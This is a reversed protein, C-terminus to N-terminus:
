GGSLIIERNAADTEVTLGPCDIIIAGEAEDSSVTIRSYGLMELYEWVSFTKTNRDEHTVLCFPTHDRDVVTESFLPMAARLWLVGDATYDAGIEPLETIMLGRGTASAPSIETPMEGYLFAISELVSRLNKFYDVLWRVKEEEAQTFSALKVPVEIRFYYPNGGYDFWEDIHTGPWSVSVAREVAGKTGKHRHIFWLERLTRRKVDLPADYEWWDVKFDYALIDCLAEPLEDIRPYIRALDIEPIREAIAGAIVSALMAMDPDEALVVPLTSLMAEKTLKM